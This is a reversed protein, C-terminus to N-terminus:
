SNGDAFALRGVAFVISMMLELFGTQEGQINLNEGKTV